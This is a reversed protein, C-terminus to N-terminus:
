KYKKIISTETETVTKIGEVTEVKVRVPSLNEDYNYFTTFNYGDHTAMPLLTKPDYVTTTMGALFPHIRIDDFYVSENSSNNKLTVRIKTMGTPINFEAELRQWGEIIKGSPSTSPLITSWTSGNYVAVKLSPASYILESTLNTGKLWAGIIYRGAKPSFPRICMCSSVSYLGNTLGGAPINCDNSINRTVSATDGPMIKLSKLGSHKELDSTAVNTGISATFDFHGLDVLTSVDLSYDYDEFGDFAIDQQRANSAQATPLLKHLKSYGFLVSSNIKTQDKFDLPRGFEDFTTVAGLARWKNTGTIRYWKKDTLNLEYYPRYETLTGNFRIGQTQTSNRETQLAYESELVLNNKLGYDFPNIVTGSQVANIDRKLDASALCSVNYREKFSLASVNIVASAVGVATSPPFTFIGPSALPDRLAVLSQMTELLRNKRGSKILKITCSGTLTIAAGTISILRATLGSVDLVYAKETSAGTVSVYDGILLKDTLNITSTFTGATVTGAIPNIKHMKPSQFNQYYWHAPFNINYIKDNYENVLNSLVIQGTYRDYVQNEATNKSGLENTTVKELVAAYNIHKNFVSVFFGSERSSKSISPLVLFPFFLPLPFVGTAGLSWFKVKSKVFRTDLHADFETSIKETLLTGDRDLTKVGELGSKYFYETLYQVNGSGNKVMVSKIKGHYDNTIVVHGQSLGYLYLEERLFNNEGANIKTLATSSSITPFDSATYFNTISSGINEAVPNGVLEVAVESYGVEPAPYLSAGMPDETFRTEDPFSVSKNKYTDWRYFPNEDNGIRPEYAAVGFTKGRGYSYKWIYEADYEGSIYNWNDKFKIQSVRANGGYKLNDHDMLRVTSKSLDVSTCYNVESMRRYIDGRWFTKNDINLDGECDPCSGYVIDTLHLRSFELATKQIPNMYIVRNEKKVEDSEVTELVVYGYEYLGGSNHPLVGTSPLSSFPFNPGFYVESQDINAFTPIPEYFNESGKIKVFNRLFLETVIGNSIPYSNLDRLYDERFLDNAEQRTTAYIPKKLKVVVVNCPVEFERHNLARLDNSESSWSDDIEKMAKTYNVSGNWGSSVSNGLSGITQDTLEKNLSSTIYSSTGNWTSQGYLASLELPTMYGKIDLHEMARRNQVKSYSDSEYFLEMEGGTPITIKKMKWASSNLNADILEQQAYPFLDNPRSASNPKFKGWRDTNKYNFNPNQDGSAYEFLYPALATEQSQSGSYIRIEKLTLKGSKSTQLNYTNKNSPNGKCLSYDYILEVTQIPTANPNNIRENLNYLKIKSLYKLPKQENIRGEENFVSYADERDELVFEAIYNRSEVSYTYWIEKEGYSYNVMNDLESSILGKNFFGKSSAGTSGSVPFRWKYPNFEDYINSYKIKYYSGPDDLTPGNGNRDVYDSSFMETLLFATAYAPVTTKDYLNSLGSLNGISAETPTYNTLGSNLPIESTQSSSFMVESQNLSYVPISYQYRVGEPSIIEVASFDSKNKIESTRVLLKNPSDSFTSYSPIGQGQLQGASIPQYITSVVDSGAIDLSNLTNSNFTFSSGTKPLMTTGREISNEDPKVLAIAVPTQGRLENLLGSKVATPEGVGKFFVNGESNSFYLNGQSDWKGSKIDGKQNGHNYGAVLSFSPGAQYIGAVVSNINNTSKAINIGDHYTGVDHRQARFSSSIGMGSVYFLDYTPFSFQLKKTEESIEQDRERNFDMVPNLADDVYSDRKESFVYGFAPNEIVKSTNNTYKFEPTSSYTQMEAGVSFVNIGQRFIYKADLITSSYRSTSSMELRPVSTISGTKFTTGFVGVDGVVGFKSGKYGGSLDLNLNRNTVGGRSNYHSGFAIGVEANIGINKQYGGILGVSSSRSIGNKSDSSYGLGLKTSLYLPDGYSYKAQIGFDFTKSRGTYPNDYKGFLLTLDVGITNFENGGIGFSGGGVVGAKIGNEIKDPALNLTRKIKQTGDFEDPIGRMERSISGVNLNWGLGVWSAEDNMGINSSYSLTIPYGEVDMLPISYSFDGTFKDVLGDMTNLSFGTAESQGPGSAVRMTKQVEPFSVSSAQNTPLPKSVSSPASLGTPTFAVRKEALKFNPFDGIAKALPITSDFLFTYFLLISTIRYIKYNPDILRM